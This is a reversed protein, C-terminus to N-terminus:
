LGAMSITFVDHFTILFAAFFIKMLSANTESLFGKSIFKICGTGGKEPQQQHLYRISHIHEPHLFTKGPFSRQAKSHCLYAACLFHHICILKIHDCVFHKPLKTASGSDVEIPRTHKNVDASCRLSMVMNITHAFFLVLNSSFLKTVDHPSAICTKTSWVFQFLSSCEFM